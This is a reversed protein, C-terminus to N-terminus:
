FVGKFINEIKPVKIRRYRYGRGLINAKPIYSKMLRVNYVDKQPFGFPPKIKYGRDTYGRDIIDKFNYDYDYVTKGLSFMKLDTKLIQDQKLGQAQSLGLSQINFVSQINRPTVALANSSISGMLSGPLSGIKLGPKNIIGTGMKNISRADKINKDWYSSGTSTGEELFELYSLSVGGSAITYGSPVRFYSRGVSPSYSITKPPAQYWEYKNINGLNKNTKVISRNVTKSIANQRGVQPGGPEVKMTTKFTWPSSKFSDQFGYVEGTDIARPLGKGALRPMSEMSKVKVNTVKGQYTKVPDTYSLRKFDFGKMESVETVQGKFRPPINYKYELPTAINRRSDFVYKDPKIIRQRIPFREGTISTNYFSYSTEYGGWKAPPRQAFINRTGYAPRGATLIDSRNIGYQINKKPSYFNKVNSAMLKNEIGSAKFTKINQYQKNLGPLKEVAKNFSSKTNSGFRRFSAKTAPSSAWGAGAAASVASMGLAIVKTGTYGEPLKGAKELAATYGIDAGVAASMVGGAVWPAYTAYGTLVTGTTTGAATAGAAGVAGFGASIGAGAAFPYVIYKMPDSLAVDQIFYNKYDEKRIKQQMSYSKDAIAKFGQGKTIQKYWMDPNAFGALVVESFGKGVQALSPGKSAYLKGGVTKINTPLPTTWIDKASGLERMRQRQYNVTDTVLYYEGKENKRVVLAPNEKKLDNFSKDYGYKTTYSYSKKLRSGLVDGAEKETKVGVSVEYALRTYLDTGITSSIEKPVMPKVNERYEEPVEGSFLYEGKRRNIDQQILENTTPGTMVNKEYEKTLVPNYKRVNPDPQTYIQVIQGQQKEPINKVTTKLDTTATYKIEGSPDRWKVRYYKGTNEQLYTNWVEQKETPEEEVEKKLGSDTNPKATAEKEEKNATTPISSGGSGSKPPGSVGAKAGGTAAAAASGATKNEVIKKAAPNKKIFYDLM